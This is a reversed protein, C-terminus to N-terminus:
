RPWPLIHALLRGLAQHCHTPVPLGVLSNDLLVLDALPLHSHLLVLLAPSRHPPWELVLRLTWRPHSLPIPLLLQELALAVAVFVASMRPLTTTAVDRPAVGGTAQESLFWVVM